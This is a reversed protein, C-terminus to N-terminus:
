SEKTGVGILYTQPGVFGEIGDFARLADEIEAWAAARETESVHMLMRSIEPLLDRVNQMAVALSPYRRQFPVAEVTVHRFGADQYVAALVAPDGLAFMGPDGFPTQPVGARRGAIGMPIAILPCKDATALVLGAFKKGPKLARYIGAMVRAREPVLMLALRMIAADFSGPEVNLERADQVLTEVNRLGARAAAEEALSLMQAAIDTALVAGTPGVRQAALLTQEGTGAAVDLVRHGIDVGALDLMRETLPTLIQARAVASRQWGSAAESSGYTGGAEDEIRHEPIMTRSVGETPPALSVYLDTRVLRVVRCCGCSAHRVRRHRGHGTPIPM